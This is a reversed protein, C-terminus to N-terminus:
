GIGAAGALSAAVADSRRRGEEVPFFRALGRSALPHRGSRRATIRRARQPAMEVLSANVEYTSGDKARLVVQWLEEDAVATREHGMLEREDDVQLDWQQVHPIGAVPIRAEDFRRRVGALPAASGAWRAFGCEQLAALEAPFLPRTASM